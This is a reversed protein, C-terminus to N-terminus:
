EDEKGVVVSIKPWGDRGKGTVISRIEIDDAALEALAFIAASSHRPIYGIHLQTAPDLVKVAYRDHEHEPETWLDVVAQLALAKAAAQSEEDHFFCGVVPIDRFVPIWSM